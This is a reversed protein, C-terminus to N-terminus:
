PLYQSYISKIIQTPESKQTTEISIDGPEEELSLKLFSELSKLVNDSFNHNDYAKTILKWFSEQTVEEMEQVSKIVSVMSGSNAQEKTLVSIEDLKYEMVEHRRNPNRRRIVGGISFGSEFGNDVLFKSEHYANRGHETSMIMKAGMWLGYPDQANLESPVGVLINKDHNKYVKIKAKREAVTKVFSTPNSIDGSLDKENYVNAYGGLFGTSDDMDKFSVPANKYVLEDM